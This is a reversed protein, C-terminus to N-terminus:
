TEVRGKKTEREEEEVWRGVQEVAERPCTKYMMLYGQLSAMSFRGEPVKEAFQAALDELETDKDKESPVSGESDGGAPQYFVRFLERAQHASAYGFEVHRDMRGPRCLAPDLAEYRNTTAFLIRGEHAGIGDIANLLGSLTVGNGVSSSDENSSSSERSVTHAFAADIDEMVAVCREPLESILQALDADDLGKRGISVVYVDLGLAGALSQILSTKGAGPVGHLLYGRRFPIGRAHYWEKS